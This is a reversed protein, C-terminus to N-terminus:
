EEFHQGNSNELQNVGIETALTFTNFGCRCLYLNFKRQGLCVHLRSHRLGSARFDSHFPHAYRNRKVFKMARQAQQLDAQFYNQTSTSPAATSAAENQMARLLRSRHQLLHLCTSHDKM